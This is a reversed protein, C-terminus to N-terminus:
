FTLRIYNINNFFINFNNLSFCFFWFLLNRKKTVFPYKKYGLKQSIKKGV